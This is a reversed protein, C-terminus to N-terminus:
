VGFQRLHHDMHVFGWRLWDARSMRGFLPHPQRELSASGDTFHALLAEVGAVDAAFDGPRTGGRQQDLEPRTPIGPPWPLPFHLAIQKLVTRTFLNVAPSAVKQGAAVRLSDALHCVMQHASMRGWRRVSETRLTRLRRLIELRDADRALTRMAGGPRVVRGHAWPGSAPALDQNARGRTRYDDHCHLPARGCARM